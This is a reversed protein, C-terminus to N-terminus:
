FQSHSREELALDVSHCLCNGLTGTDFLTFFYNFSCACLVFLFSGRILWIVGDCLSVLSQLFVAAPLSLNGDQNFELMLFDQMRQM